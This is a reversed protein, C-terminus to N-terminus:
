RKGTSKDKIESWRSRRGNKEESLIYKSKQTNLNLIKMLDVTYGNMLFSIWHLARLGFNRLEKDYKQAHVIGSAEIHVLEESAKEVCHNYGVSDPLYQILM